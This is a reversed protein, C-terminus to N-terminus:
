IVALVVIFAILQITALPHAIMLCIIGCVVSWTILRDLNPGEAGFLKACLLQAAFPMIILALGLDNM